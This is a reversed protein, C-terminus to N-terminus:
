AAKALAADIAATLRPDDAAIDPAFRGAVKGDRGILFKEFNWLVAPPADREIGFGKLRERFPGDGTAAPQAATLFGYLPHQDDGLVSIKSFLPFHVDFSTSCFDQIEADTGPEQGLFNNAPFGLIELGADKKAQYLAELGAYQPTLGCKSAVNVILLVKGAFPALTGEAGDIRTVPIDFLGNSM